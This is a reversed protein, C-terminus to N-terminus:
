RCSRAELAKVRNFVDIDLQSGIEDLEQNVSGFSVFTQDDNRLIVETMVSEQLNRLGTSLFLEGSVSHTQKQEALATRLSPFEQRLQDLRTAQLKGVAYSVGTKSPDLKDIAAEWTPLATDIRKLLQDYGTKSMMLPANQQTQATVLGPLMAVILLLTKM